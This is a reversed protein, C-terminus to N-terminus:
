GESFHPTLRLLYDPKEKSLELLDLAWSGILDKGAGHYDGGGLGNGCATLLPLPDFCMDYSCHGSPLDYEKHWKNQKVYDKLDVYMQRDHNILFFSCHEVDLKFDPQKIPIAPAEATIGDEAGYAIPYLAIIAEANHPTNDGDSAYDGIWAVRCPGYRLQNYCAHVFDNGLYSHETLKAGCDHSWSDEVFIRKFEDILLCKYYQGM